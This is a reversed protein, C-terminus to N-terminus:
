GRSKVHDSILWIGAAAHVLRWVQLAFAFPRFPNVLVAVGLYAFVAVRRGGALAVGAELIAFLTLVWHLALLFERPLPAFASGLALIGLAWAPWRLLSEAPPLGGGKKRAM